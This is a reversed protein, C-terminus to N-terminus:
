RASKKKIKLAIRFNEQSIKLKLATIIWEFYKQIRLFFGLPIKGRITDTNAINALSEM